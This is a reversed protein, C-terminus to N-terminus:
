VKVWISIREKDKFNFSKVQNNTTAFYGKIFKGPICHANGDLNKEAYDGKVLDEPVNQPCKANLVCIIRM